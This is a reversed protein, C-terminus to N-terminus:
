GLQIKIHERLKAFGMLEPVTEGVAGRSKRAESFFAQEWPPIMTYHNIRIMERFVRLSNQSRCGSACCGNCAHYISALCARHFDGLSILSTYRLALKIGFLRTTKLILPFLYLSIAAMRYSYPMRYIRKTPVCSSYSRM